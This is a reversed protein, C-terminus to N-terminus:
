KLEFVTVKTNAAVEDAEHVTGAPIFRASAVKQSTFVVVTDRPHFHRESAKQPGSYDWVTVRENDLLPMSTVVFAPADTAGAFRDDVALPTAGHRALLIRTLM